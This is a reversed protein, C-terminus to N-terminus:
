IFSMFDWQLGDLDWVEGDMLGHVYCGGIFEWQPGQSRLIVPIRMGHFVCLRDGVQTRFPVWGIRGQQSVFFNRAHGVRGEAKEFPEALTELIKSHCAWDILDHKWRKAMQLKKSLYWYGFSAALWAGPRQNPSNYNFHPERNYVLTRWFADFSSGAMINDRPSLSPEALLRIESLWYVMATEYRAVEEMATSIDVRSNTASSDPLPLPPRDRAVIRVRDFIAGRIDIEQMRM